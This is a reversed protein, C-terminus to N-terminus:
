IARSKPISYAFYIGIGWIVFGMPSFMSSLLEPSFPSVFFMEGHYEPFEATNELMYRRFYYLTMFYEAVFLTVLTIVASMSQLIAGRKHGSGFIVAWGIIFGVGIAIYGIQYGTLISFFYWIIGAVVGAICGLVAAMVVNPNETESKLAKEVEGRCAECLFVETNDKGKYTYADKGPVEKQCQACIASTNAKSGIKFKESGANQNEM